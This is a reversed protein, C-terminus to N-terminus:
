ATLSAIPDVEVPKAFDPIDESLPDWCVAEVSRVALEYYGEKLVTGEREAREKLSFRGTSARYKRRRASNLDPEPMGEDGRGCGLLGFGITKVKETFM